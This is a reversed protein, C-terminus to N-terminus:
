QNPEIQSKKLRVEDGSRRRKKRQPAKEAFSLLLARDGEEMKALARRLKNMFRVDKGTSGWEDSHTADGNGAPAEPGDYMLQYLPM